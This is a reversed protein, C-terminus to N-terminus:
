AACLDPTNSSAIRSFITDRIYIEKDFILEHLVETHLCEQLIGKFTMLGLKEQFTERIERTLHHEVNM